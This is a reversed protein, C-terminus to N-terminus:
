PLRQLATHELTFGALLFLMAPLLWRLFQEQFDYYRPAELTIKELADVDAMVKAFAASDRVPFYRAGTKDAIGQLLKEDLGANAAQLVRGFIGTALIVARQSGIGVTYVAVNNEKALTAAQLPTIKADINNEGDTFLVAVRRRAPSDKLRLVASALPSAINTGDPLMGPEMLALHELLFAHDLTPPCVMYPIRSFAIMGIRDDPRREVFKGLEEKAADLRTHLVGERIARTVADASDMGEPLDYSQMSGSVDLVLMIDVGESRQVQRENGFQPRMLAVICLAAGLAELVAPVHRLLRAWGPAPVAALAELSSYRLAPPRRRLALWLAVALPIVLLAFWPHQFRFM